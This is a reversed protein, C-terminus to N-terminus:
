FYFKNFVELVMFMMSLTENFLDCLLQLYSVINHVRKDDTQDQYLFFIALIRVSLPSQKKNRKLKHQNTKMM